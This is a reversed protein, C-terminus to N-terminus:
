RRMVVTMRDCWVEAVLYDAVSVDGINVTRKSYFGHVHLRLGHQLNRETQRSVAPFELDLDGYLACLLRSCEECICCRTAGEDVHKDRFRHYWPVCM